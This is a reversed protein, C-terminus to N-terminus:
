VRALDAILGAALPTNWIACHAYYAVFHKYNVSAAYSALVVLDSDLDGAWTGLSTLADGAQVGNCYMAIRDAAASWTVALHIWNTSNAPANSDSIGVVGGQRCDLSLDYSTGNTLRIANSSNVEIRLMYLGGVANWNATRKLWFAVTGEAGSFASNLGASYLNVRDSSLYVCDKGDGIGPQMYDPTGVYTGNLGSRLEYATAGSQEWLPWYAILNSSATGLVKKYYDQGGGRSRHLLTPKM